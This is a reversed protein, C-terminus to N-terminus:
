RVWQGACFKRAMQRSFIAVSLESRGSGLGGQASRLVGHRDADVRWGEPSGCLSDSAMQREGEVRGNVSKRTTQKESCGAKRGSPSERAVKRELAACDALGIM